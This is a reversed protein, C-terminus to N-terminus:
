HSEAAIAAGLLHDAVDAVYSAPANQPANVQVAGEAVNVGGSAGRRALDYGYWGAATALHPVVQAPVGNRPAYLEGGTAPEDWWVKGTGNGMIAANRIGGAAMHTVSDLGGWRRASGGGYNAWAAFPDPAEMGPLMSLDSILGQLGQRLTSSPSLTEDLVKLRELYLRTADAAGMTKVDLEYQAEATDWAAQEVRGEAEAVEDRADVVAQRADVLRQQAEGVADQADRVRLSAQELRYQSEEVRRNAEEVRQQAEEVRRTLQEQVQTVRERAESLQEEATKEKDAASTIADKANVVEDSQEIGKERAENLRAETDAARVRAEELALEAARVDLALRAADDNEGPEALRARADRLALTAREVSIDAGRAARELDELNRAARGRAADLDEQAVLSDRQAQALSREADEVGRNAQALEKTGYLADQQAQALAEGAEVASRQADVVGRQADQVGRAADQVARYADQVGKSASTVGRQADAVARHADTVGRAADAQAQHAGALNQELGYRERAADVGDMLAENQAEIEQALLAAKPTAAGQEDAWGQTANALANMDTTVPDLGLDALIQTTEDVTTGLMASLSTIRLVGSQYDAFERQAQKISAQTERNYDMDVTYARWGTQIEARLGAALQAAMVAREQLSGVTAEAEKDLDDFFGAARNTGSQEWQQMQTYWLAGAAAVAGIAGAAGLSSVAMRKQAAEVAYMAKLQVTMAASHAGAALASAGTAAAYVAWGIAAAQIVPALTVLLGTIHELAEGIVALGLGALAAALQVFMEMIPQGVDVLGEFLTLLNEGAKTLSEWGSSDGIESGLEAAWSAFDRIADVAGLLMPVLQAGAVRAINTVQNGFIRLQSEATAYRKSVEDVLATNEEWANNAVGMSEGVLEGAGALRLLADRTRIETYGLEELTGFLSQGSADVEGLGEIFATMAAATDNRWLNAFEESTMGAVEALKALSEGGHDVSTAIDIMIRSIASGGAEAEIGVSSLAASLGLIEAETLGVQSGAGAIRLGMAVIEAETTAFNNGLDVITSGLRDFEAQPMQTINALRALSTAAENAALNTSEGLGIMTESFDLINPTAIGLQGAAEAVGAIEERTAPMRNAMSIIGDELMRFDAETGTVTKRVGAFASEWSIAQGVMLKGAETVARFTVAIGAVAGAKVAFDRISSGARTTTQETTRGFSGVAAEGRNLDRIFGGVDAALAVSITRWANM